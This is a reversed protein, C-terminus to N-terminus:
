GTAVKSLYMQPRFKSVFTKFLHHTLELQEKFKIEGKETIEGFISVTRKYDGATYEKYDVDHKKLLRYFNPVQAVVGISGIIAFPAALVQNGICAMLYGGSAAVKDVCVTLALGAAAFAAGAALAFNLVVEFFFYVRLSAAQRTKEPKIAFLSVEIACM